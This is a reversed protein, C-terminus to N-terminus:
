GTIILIPAHPEPRQRYRHIFRRGDLVLLYIDLIILDPSILELLQLAVAGDSAAIALYGHHTLVQSVGARVSADDEVFLVSLM